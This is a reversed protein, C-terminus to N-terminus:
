KIINSVLDKIGKVGDIVETPFMLLMGRTRRVDRDMNFIARRYVIGYFM